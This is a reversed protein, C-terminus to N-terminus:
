ATRVLSDRVWSAARALEGERLPGEKGEVIFGAPPAGLRGGKSKLVVAIRPAAFGLVATLARLLLGEPAMRTDFAYVRVGELAHDPIGALFAKISPTPRGGQTPAGVVLVDLAELDSVNATSPDILRSGEVAGAMAEAVQRTNGYVSDAVILVKM